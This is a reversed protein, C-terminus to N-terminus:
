AFLLYQSALTQVSTCTFRLICDTYRICFISAATDLSYYMGQWGRFAHVGLPLESSALTLLALVTWLKVKSKRITCNGSSCMVEDVGPLTTCDTGTVTGTMNSAYLPPCGGCSEINRLTDICQKSLM